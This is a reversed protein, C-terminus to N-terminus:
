MPNVDSSTNLPMIPLGSGSASGLGSGISAFGLKITIISNSYVPLKMRMIETVVPTSDILYEFTNELISTIGNVNIIVDVLAPPHPGSMCTICSYNSKMVVCISDNLFVTFNTTTCNNVDSENSFQMVAFQGVVDMIDREPMIPFGMGLITIM